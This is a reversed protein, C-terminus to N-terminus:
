GSSNLPYIRPRTGLMTFVELLQDTVHSWSYRKATEYAAQGIRDRKDPNDLLAIMRQALANPERVPIHYGTVGDQILFALGGVESAIVPTGCAMAELAVMGFSEYDSPMVLAEAARYYDPLWDQSKAGIFEIHYELELMHQLMRLRLMEEDANELDGGIVSIRLKGFLDPRMSRVQHAAEFITDVGKLPELRGVFLLHKEDPKWGLTHRALERDAPHFRKLDVGPPVVEIKRRDARYLLLLQSREAPTAAIIRDAFHMVETEGRVRVDGASTLEPNFAIRNKMRGLTHFMQAVPTGWYRRLQVAVWGSLWYHSYIADYSLQHDRAFALLSDRFDNLYPYISEPLLPEPPGSPLYILRAHPELHLVQGQEDPAAARTFVDVHIGRRAMERTIERVYVNMGGIKKGGPTAIPSTHVSLMALHLPEPPPFRGAQSM